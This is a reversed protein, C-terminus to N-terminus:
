IAIIKLFHINTAIKSNIPFKFEAMCTQNLIIIVIINNLNRISYM